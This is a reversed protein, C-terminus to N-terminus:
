SAKAVENLQKAWFSALAPVEFVRACGAPVLWYGGTAALPQLLM